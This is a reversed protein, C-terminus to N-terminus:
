GPKRGHTAADTLAGAPVRPLGHCRTTPTTRPLAREAIADASLELARATSASHERSLYVVYGIGIAVTAAVAVGVARLMLRNRSAFKRLRYWASDPRALVPDGRLYRELDQAFAAM